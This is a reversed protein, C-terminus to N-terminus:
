MAVTHGPKYGMNICRTRLIPTPPEPPALRAFDLLYFRQDTGVHGELDFPGALMHADGAGVQDRVCHEKLNLAQLLM